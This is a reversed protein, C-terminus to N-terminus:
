SPALQPSPMEGRPFDLLAEYTRAVARMRPITEFRDWCSIAEFLSQESKALITRDDLFLLPTADPVETAQHKSVM